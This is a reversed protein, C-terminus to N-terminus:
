KTGFAGIFNSPAPITVTVGAATLTSHVPTFDTKGKTLGPADSKLHFDWAPNLIKTLKDTSVAYNVFKPDSDVIDSDQKKTRREVPDTNPVVDTSPWFNDKDTADTAYYHTYGYKTNDLDPLDDGRLRIGFKCNVILNNYNLGKAGDELNTSGGRGSQARRHGCNIFTNNYTNINTQPVGDGKGAPKCGNTAVAYFLNYCVDGVTGDKINLGEGGTEGVNYFVSHMIAMKGGGDPRIGDDAINRLTCREFVFVGEPNGFHIAFRPDGADYVDPMADGAAAGTYEVVCHRLILAACSNTAQIGGWMGEYANEDLRVPEPVTFLIPDTATGEAVLDGEVRIEPKVAAASGDFALVVGPKLILKKGAPVIIDATVNYVGKELTGEVNGSLDGGGKPTDDKKEDEKKCSTFMMSASLILASLFLNTKKM